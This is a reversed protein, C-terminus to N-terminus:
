LFHFGHLYLNALFSQGDKDGIGGDTAGSAASSTNAERSPKLGANRIQNMFCAGLKSWKAFLLVNM